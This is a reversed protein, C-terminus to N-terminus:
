KGAREKLMKLVRELSAIQKEISTSSGITRITSSSSPSTVISTTPALRELWSAGMGGYNEYAKEGLVARVANQTETKLTAYAAQRETSDFTTDRRLESAKKEAMGKIEWVENAAEKGLDFRQTLKYTEKYKYDTARKYEAFREEGLVAAVQKDLAKKETYYDSRDKSSMSSTSVYDGHKQDFEHRIKFIENFEQQSPEFAMLDYRVRSTTRSSRVNYAFMEDPSLFAAMEEQKAKRIAKLKERDDKMLNISSGNRSFIEREQASYRSVLAKLAERKEEPVYDYLTSKRLTGDETMKSQFDDGLLSKLVNDREEKLRNYEKRQESSQTSYPQRYKWYEKRSSTPAYSLPRMQGNYIKNVDTYIIDRITEEPVGINRMNAIYEKFDDSEISNWHFAEKVVLPEPVSPATGPHPATEEARQNTAQNALPITALERNMLTAIAGVALVNLTVSVILPSKNM